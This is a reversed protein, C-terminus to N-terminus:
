QKGIGTSEMLDDAMPLNPMLRSRRIAALYLYLRGCLLATMYILESSLLVAVYPYLSLYTHM